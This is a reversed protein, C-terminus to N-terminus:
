GHPRRQLLRGDRVGTRRAVRAPRVTGRPRPHHEAVGRARASGGGHARPLRRPDRRRARVAVRDPRRLRDPGVEHLRFTLETVVGLRAGAGRLAWFLDAHEDRSARRIEGDATVIEAELLNDVAWGFRRTLYGLGGGLTLGAVGVESFFGLPMALGHEQTARDVDGLLCGPQVTATRAAPDVTVGRLGSMDITLGGEILATGAINHGGGRVSVPLGHGTAYRVARVVDATGAPRVVHAPRTAIMGNWLRTAEDYGPDGPGLLDALAKHLAEVFAEPREVPPDDACDEIVHLPWGHRASAAEAVELPTAMDQRGWILATPVAIRELEAEPIAPLGFHEMVAGLAALVSPTRARDLNYAAFARWRDGMDERLRDLDLACHRWLEDHTRENPDAMFAHLAAGFEPAPDFAQLGLTDVLVLRELRDGHRAAFRAAIAGGVANGVLAPPAACTRDILEGLWELVREADLPESAGQGPLDPAIVRHTGTLAGIVRGWHAGNGGPGHLLVLPPGDGGELVATEAGAITLRREGVPIGELLQERLTITTMGRGYTRVRRAVETPVVWDRTATAHTIGGM